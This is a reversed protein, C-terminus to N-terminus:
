DPMECKRSKQKRTHLFGCFSIEIRKKKRHICTYKLFLFYFTCEGTSLLRDSNTDIKQVIDLMRERQEAPSLKKIEETDGTGGLLVNMDHEPDHQQGMFHDEHVHKQASEGFTFQMVLLATTVVTSFVMQPSLSVGNFSTKPRYNCARDTIIAVM